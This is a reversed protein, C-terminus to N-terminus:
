IMIQLVMQTSPSLILLGGMNIYEHPHIQLFQTVIGLGPVDETQGGASAITFLTWCRWSVM